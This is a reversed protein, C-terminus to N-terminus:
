EDGGAQSINDGIQRIRPRRDRSKGYPNQIDTIGTSNTFGDEVSDLFDEFNQALDFEKDSGADGKPNKNVNTLSNALNVSGKLLGLLQSKTDTKTNIRQWHVARIVAAAQLLDLLIDRLTEKETYDTGKIHGESEEILASISEAGPTFTMPVTVDIETSKFAMYKIIAKSALYGKIAEQRAMGSEVLCKTQMAVLAEVNTMVSLLQGEIEGISEALNPLKISKSQDGKKTIDADKIDIQVQWQGWREDDRKFNWMFLDVWDAIPEQPPEAPQEGEKPIEQIITAPLNGPFKNIGLGKHIQRMLRVSLRCCEDMQKRPPPNPFSIYNESGGISITPRCASGGLTWIIRPEYIVELLELSDSPSYWQSLIGWRLDNKTGGFYGFGFVAKHKNSENFFEKIEVDTFWIDDENIITQSFPPQLFYFTRHQRRESAIQGNIVYRILIYIEGAYGCEVGTPPTITSNIKKVSPNEITSIPDQKKGGGFGLSIVVPTFPIQYSLTIGLGEESDASVEVGFGGIEGSISGGQIAGTNTNIKVGGGLGILGGPLEASGAISISNKNPDSPDVTASIDLEIPSVDVSVGGTVSMGGIQGVEQTLGIGGSSASPQTKKGLDIDEDKRLNIGGSTGSPSSRSSARSM